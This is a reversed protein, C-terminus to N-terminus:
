GTFQKNTYSAGEQVDSRLNLLLDAKFVYQDAFPLAKERM